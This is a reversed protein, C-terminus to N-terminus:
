TKLIQSIVEAQAMDKALKEAAQIQSQCKSDIRKADFHSLELDCVRYLCCYNRYIKYSLKPHKYLHYSTSWDWDNLPYKDLDDLVRQAVPSPKFIFFPNFLM